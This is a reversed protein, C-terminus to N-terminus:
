KNHRLWLYLLTWAVDHASNKFSTRRRIFYFNANDRQVDDGITVFVFSVWKACHIWQKRFLIIANDASVIKEQQRPALACIDEERVHAYRLSTDPLM